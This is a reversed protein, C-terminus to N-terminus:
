IVPEFEAFMNKSESLTELSVYECVESYRACMAQWVPNQHAAAIAEASKWEFVEIITGDTAKMVCSPRDTALGQSRLIPLHERTLELLLQEKGPRPRYAVIVFRGMLWRRRVFPLHAGETKQFIDCRKLTPNKM